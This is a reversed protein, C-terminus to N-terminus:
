PCCNELQSVFDPTTALMRQKNAKTSTSVRYKLAVSFANQIHFSNSKLSDGSSAEDVM